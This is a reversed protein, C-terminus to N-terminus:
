FQILEFIPWLSLDEPAKKNLMRLGGLAPEDVGTWFISYKLGESKQKLKVLM